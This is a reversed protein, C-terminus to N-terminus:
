ELSGLFMALFASAYKFDEPMPSVAKKPGSASNKTNLLTCNSEPDFKAKWSTSEVSPVHFLPVSSFGFKPWLGLCLSPYKGKGGTSM